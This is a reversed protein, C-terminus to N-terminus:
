EVYGLSRLDELMEEDIGLEEATAKTRGSILEAALLKMARVRDPEARSLDNLEAPDERLDFLAMRGGTSLMKFNDQLLAWDEGRRVLVHDPYPGTFIRAAPFTDPVPRGLFELLAAPLDISRSLARVEEALGPPKGGRPFKVVLPVRIAEEWLAETAMLGGHELLEVGHDSTLLLLTDDDRGSQALLDVLPEVIQHDARRLTAEYDLHLRGVRDADSLAHRELYGPDGRDPSYPPACAEFWVAGMFPRRVRELIDALAKLRGVDSSSPRFDLADFIEGMGDQVPGPIEGGVAFISYGSQALRHGLASVESGLSRSAYHRRYVVSDPQRAVRDLVPTTPRQFGYCGLKDPRCHGLSVFLINPGASEIPGNERDPATPDCSAMLVAALLLSLRGCSEVIPRQLM